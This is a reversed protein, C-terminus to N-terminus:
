EKKLYDQIEEADKSEWPYVIWEAENELQEAWLTPEVIASKKYHLTASYVGPIDKLTNGTDCIDDVVLTNPYIAQVYPLNLKHSLLVAPILGGRQIGHVNEIYPAGGIVKQGLIDVLEEIEQWTVLRKPKSM